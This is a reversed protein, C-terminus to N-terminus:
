LAARQRHGSTEWKRLSNRYETANDKIVNYDNINGGRVTMNKHRAIEVIRSCNSAVSDLKGAIEKRQDPSREDWSYTMASYTVSYLMLDIKYKSKLEGSTAKVAAIKANGEAEMDKADKTDKKASCAALAM